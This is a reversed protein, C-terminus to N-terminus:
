SAEVLTDKRGWFSGPPPNEVGNGRKQKTHVMLESSYPYISKASVAPEKKCTSTLLSRTSAAPDFCAINEHPRDKGRTSTAHKELPTHMHTPTHPQSYAPVHARVCICACVRKGGGGEERDRERVREREKAGEREGERESARAGM